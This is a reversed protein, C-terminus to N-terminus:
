PKADKVCRIGIMPSAQNVPWGRRMYLRFFREDKLMFSGGKINAWDRSVPKASSLKAMDDIERDTVPFPSVTWEFVNGAMNLARFPSQREPLDDIAVLQDPNKMPENGWPYVHGHQGRAAKEWEAETPVRRGAWGCYAKADDLSVQVVPLNPAMRLEM